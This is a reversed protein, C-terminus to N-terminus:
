QKLNKLLLSLINVDQSNEVLRYKTAEDMEDWIPNTPIGKFVMLEEPTRIIFKYDLNEIFNDLEVELEVELGPKIIKIIIGSIIDSLMEYIILCTENETFPYTKIENELKLDYKSLNAHALINRIKRVGLESDNLFNLETENILNEDKLKKILNFFTSEFDNLSSKVINEFLAFLYFLSIHGKEENFLRECESFQGFYYKSYYALLHFLENKLQEKKLLM